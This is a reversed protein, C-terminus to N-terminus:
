QTRNWSFWIECTVIICYYNWLHETLFRLRKVNGRWFSRKIGNKTNLFHKWQFDIYEVLIVINIGTKIDLIIYCCRWHNMQYLHCICSLTFYLLSYANGLHFCLMETQGTHIYKLSLQIDCFIFNKRTSM